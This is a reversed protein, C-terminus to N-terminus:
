ALTPLDALGDARLDIFVWFPTAEGRWFDAAATFVELLSDFGEPEADRLEDCGTILLVTAPSDRWSLDTLCDHLADLNGGFYEPLGLAEALLQLAGAMDDNEEFDCAAFEIGAARTAKELANKGSTPLHYVGAHPASRLLIGLEEDRM